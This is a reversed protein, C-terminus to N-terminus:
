RLAIPLRRRQGDCRRPAARVAFAVAIRPLRVRPLRIVKSKGHARRWTPPTSKAESCGQTEGRCSCEAVRLSETSATRLPSRLCTGATKPGLPAEGARWGSRPSTAM